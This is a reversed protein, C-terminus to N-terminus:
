SDEDGDNGFNLRDKKSSELDPFIGALSKPVNPLLESAAERIVQDYSGKRDREKLIKLRRHTADSVQITTAMPQLPEELKLFKRNPGQHVCTRIHVLTFIM